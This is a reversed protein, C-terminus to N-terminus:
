RNEHIAERESTATAGGRVRALCSLISDATQKASDDASIDKWRPHTPEATLPGTYGCSALGRLFAEVALLGSEGPLLREMVTQEDISRGPVLDNLHVAVVISPDLVAIQSESEGACAWHFCDLMLGANPRDVKDILELAGTLDHVFEHKKGERRSKPSVYEVGFAIGFDALIDAAERIREVHMATNQTFDLEDSFPLVVSTAREYGLDRAVGARRPLDAIEREWEDADVGIKQATLSCYGPRLGAESMEDRFRDVGFSIVADTFRNFRIDLGEFGAKQAIGISEAPEAEIAILDPM